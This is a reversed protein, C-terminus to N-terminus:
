RLMLDLWLQIDEELVSKEEGSVQKMGFGHMEMGGTLSVGLQQLPQLVRRCM